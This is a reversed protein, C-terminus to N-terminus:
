ITEEFYEEEFRKFDEETFVSDPETTEPRPPLVYHGAKSRRTIEEVDDGELPTSHLKLIKKVTSEMRDKASKMHNRVDTVTIKRSSGEIQNQKYKKGKKKVMKMLKHSEPMMKKSRKNPFNKRPADDELIELSKKLLATSM